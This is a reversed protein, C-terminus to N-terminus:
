KSHLCYQKHDLMTQNEQLCYQFVLYVLYVVFLLLLPNTIYKKLNMLLKPMCLALAAFAFIMRPSLPGVTLYHGGGSFSCDLVFACLCVYAAMDCKGALSAARFQDWM